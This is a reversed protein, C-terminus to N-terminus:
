ETIAIQPAIGIMDAFADEGADTYIPLGNEDFEYALDGADSDGTPTGTRSYSKNLSARGKIIQGEHASDYASDAIILNDIM